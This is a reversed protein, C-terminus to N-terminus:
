NACLIQCYRVPQLENTRVLRVLGRGGVDLFLHEPQLEHTRVFHVRLQVIIPNMFLMNYSACRHFRVIMANRYMPQLENTRVSRM